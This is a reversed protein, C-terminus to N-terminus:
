AETEINVLNIEETNVTTTFKTFKLNGNEFYIHVKQNPNEQDTLILRNTEVVSGLYQNEINEM